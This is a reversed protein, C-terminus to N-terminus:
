PTPASTGPLAQATQTTDPPASEAPAPAADAPAIATIEGTPGYHSAFVERTEADGQRIIRTLRVSAGNRAYEVKRSEGAPLTPDIEVRPPPPPTIGGIVPGELTVERAVKTGYFRFTATLRKASSDTEILLWSGTDNTFKLDVSPSFVTADLGAPAGQEYYAVRYGHPWREVIPLGAYFAARFLTTSVQCVGGGVGDRTAGDMIIKTKQYGTEESIDGVHENFSFVAGPPVLLGDFQAVAIGINHVREPPSGVFKSTQEVVLERIGLDAARVTDSVAPPSEDVGVATVRAGDAGAGLIHEATRSYNVQRAPEGPKVLGLESTETDFHFRPLSATRSIAETIPEMWEALRAHDIDLVVTQAQKTTTLMPAVALPELVWDTTGDRLTVPRELLHRAAAVAAGADTVEPPIVNYALELDQIPWQGHRGAARLTDIAADVNLARGASAETPHVEIGDIALSANVAPRDFADAIGEVTARVEAQDVTVVPALTRGFMRAGIMDRLALPLAGERGVGYAHEVTARADFMIGAFAPEFSWEEDGARVTIPANPDLGAGKLLRLAEGPTHGGLVTTGVRVGPFVRGAYAYRHYALTGALALLVLSVALM